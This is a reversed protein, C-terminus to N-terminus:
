YIVFKENRIADELLESELTSELSHKRSSLIIDRIRDTCYELPAPKGEAVMEAIYAIHLNGSDDSVQAFSEKISGILSRYDTGLDKALTLADTWTDSADVYKITATLALSDVSLLDADDDSSMKKKLTKLSKSDAPIIMYRAKLLPRDLRFKDKNDKYYDEVEEETVLTDLRQNIYLEQYRYKLLARRYDELEKSVDKESASLQEEAMDLLILDEAWGNIYRQALASSDEPSVGSPIFRDLESRHLKHKGVRAVVEGKLLEAATDALQCSTCAILALAIYLWKKM